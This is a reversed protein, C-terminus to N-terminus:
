VNQKEKLKRVENITPLTFYFTAGENVKGEAWVEGGHRDIISKVIALGVGSGEFENMKHLRQFVGFLKNSYQMDFGAGNDRVYYCTKGKEKHSGIEIEIVEKKSSYKVANSLLNTWVHRLMSLDACAPLLPLRKIKIKKGNEKVVESLSDVILEEMDVVSKMLEKRGMRAFDLMDDILQGMRKANKIVVEM